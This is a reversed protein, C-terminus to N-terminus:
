TLPFVFHLLCKAAFLLPSFMCHGILLLSILNIIWWKGHQRMWPWELWICNIIDCSTVSVEQKGGRNSKRWMTRAWCAAHRLTKVLHAMLFMMRFAAWATFLLIAYHVKLNYLHFLSSYLGCVFDAEDSEGSFIAGGSGQIHSLSFFFIPPLPPQLGNGILVWACVSMLIPWDFDTELVIIASIRAICHLTFVIGWDLIHQNTKKDEEVLQSSSSIIKLRWTSFCHHWTRSFTTLRCAFSM